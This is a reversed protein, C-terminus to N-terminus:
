GTRPKALIIGEVMRGPENALMREVRVSLSQAPHTLEHWSRTGLADSAQLLLLPEGNLRLRHVSLHRCDRYWLGHPHPEGPLDGDRPAVVFLNGRKIVLADALNM